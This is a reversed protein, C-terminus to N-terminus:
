GHGAQAWLLAGLEEDTLNEFYVRFAFRAGPLVPQIGTLQKKHQEIDEQSGQYTYDKPEVVKRHWYLKHGRIVMDSAYHRL